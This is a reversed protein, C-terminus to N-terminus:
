ALPSTSFFSTPAGNTNFDNIDLGQATLSGSWAITSGPSFNLDIFGEIGVAFAGSKTIDGFEDGAFFSDIPVISNDVNLAADGSINDASTFVWLRHFRWSGGSITSVLTMARRLLGMANGLPWGAAPGPPRVAVLRAASM